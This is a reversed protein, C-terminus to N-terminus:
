VARLLAKASSRGLVAALRLRGRFHRTKMAPLSSKMREAAVPATVEEIDCLMVAERYKVPLKVIAGRIACVVEERLVAEDAPDGRSPM